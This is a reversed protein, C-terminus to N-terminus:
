FMPAPRQVEHTLTDDDIDIFAWLSYDLDSAMVNLRIASEHM